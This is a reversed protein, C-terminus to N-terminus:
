CKCAPEGHNRGGNATRSRAQRTPRVVRAQTRSEASAPAHSSQARADVQRVTPGRVRLAGDPDRDGRRRSGKADDWRPGPELRCAREERRRPRRPNRQAQSREVSSASCGSRVTAPELEAERLSDLKTSLTLRSRVTWERWGPPVETPFPLSTVPTRCDRSPAQLDLRNRTTQRRPRTWHAIARGPLRTRVAHAWEANCSSNIDGPVRAHRDLAAGDFEGERPEHVPPPSASRPDSRPAGM